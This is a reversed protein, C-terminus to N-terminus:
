SELSEERRYLRNFDRRWKHPPFDEGADKWSIKTLENGARKKGDVDGKFFRLETDNM